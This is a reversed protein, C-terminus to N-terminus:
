MVACQSQEPKPGRYAKKKAKDEEEVEVAKAIATEMAGFAADAVSRRAMADSAEDWAGITTRSLADLADSAREGDGRALAALAEVAARGRECRGGTAACAAFACELMRARCEGDDRTTPACARTMKECIDRCRARWRADSEDDGRACRELTAACARVRADVSARADRAEDLMARRQATVSRRAM